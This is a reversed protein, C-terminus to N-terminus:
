ARWDAARLVCVEGGKLLLAAPVRVENAGTCLHWESDQALAAPVHERGKQTVQWSKRPGSDRSHCM